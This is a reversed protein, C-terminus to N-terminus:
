FRVYYVRINFIFIPVVVFGEGMLISKHVFFFSNSYKIQYFIFHQIGKVAYTIKLFYYFTTSKKMKCKVHDKAPGAKVVILLNTIVDQYSQFSIYLALM